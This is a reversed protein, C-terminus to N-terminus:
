KLLKFLAAGLALVAGASGVVDQTSIESPTSKNNPIPSLTIPLQRKSAEKPIPSPTMPLQRGDRESDRVFDGVDRLSDFFDDIQKSLHNGTVCWCAFHECNNLLLSYLDEGIRSYARDVAEQHSFKRSKYLRVGYGRRQCFNKINTLEVVGRSFGDVFGSYHIIKGSGLYIGHHTYGVRPSYIHDGPVAKVEPEDSSDKERLSKELMRLRDEFNKLNDHNPIQM